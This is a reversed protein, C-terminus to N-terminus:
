NTDKNCHRVNVHVHIRLILKHMMIKRLRIIELIQGMKTTDTTFEM